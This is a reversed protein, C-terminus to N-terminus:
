NLVIAMRMNPRRYVTRAIRAIEFADASDTTRMAEDRNRTFVMVHGTHNYYRVWEGMGDNITWLDM